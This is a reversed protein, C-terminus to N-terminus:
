NSRCCESANLPMLLKKRIEFITWSSAKRSHVTPKLSRWVQCTGRIIWAVQDHQMKRRTSFLASRLALRSRSSYDIMKSLHGYSYTVIPLSCYTDQTDSNLLELYGRRAFHTTFESTFASSALQWDTTMVSTIEIPTPSSPLLSSTLKSSTESATNM